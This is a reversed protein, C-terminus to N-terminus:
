SSFRAGGLRQGRFSSYVLQKDLIGDTWINVFVARRCPRMGTENVSRFHFM